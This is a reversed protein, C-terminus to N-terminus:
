PTDEIEVIAGEPCAPMCANCQNCYENIFAKDERMEIADFPCSSVCTECGTCKEAKVIVSM